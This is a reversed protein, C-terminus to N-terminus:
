HRFRALVDKAMDKHVTFTMIKLKVYDEQYFYYGFHSSNRSGSGSDKILYWDKGEKEAYGVVHIGHDDTTTKNGFRLERANEDIFDSPIDFDPIVALGAHGEYGPESTDGGICLTHGNRVTRKIIKLFDDLPVNAYEKSHWWNDPVEYEAKEYYPKEMLSMIEVYDDLNLRVVKALYDLPTMVTGDVTVTAPPEGVYHNLISRITSVVLEENWANTNKVTGLYSKMEVVMTDHDHYKQGHLLGTYAEAPVIGYTRWIRPVANSESGQDFESKGRERVFRRAKEVYEWYVTYLESLEIARKTLRYIESEYFSTASFCWCMGSLGQSIPPTHWYQTFESATKPAAVRSFDMRLVKKKPEEKKRFRALESKMSDLFENKPEAFVARDRGTEQAQAVDIHHTWLLVALLLVCRKMFLDEPYYCMFPVRMARSRCTLLKM